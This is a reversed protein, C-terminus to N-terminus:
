RDVPAAGVGELPVVVLAQEAAGVEQREPDRVHVERRRLRDEIRDPRSTIVRYEAVSDAGVFVERGDLVPESFAVSPLDRSFPHCEARRARDEANVTDDQQERFRTVADEHGHRGVTRQDAQDGVIIPADQPTREPFTVVAPKAEGDVVHLFPELRVRSEQDEAAGGVRDAAHVRAAFELRERRECFPFIQDDNGVFDVHVEHHRAVRM